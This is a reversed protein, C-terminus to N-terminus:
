PDERAREEGNFYNWASKVAAVSWNRFSRWNIREEPLVGTGSVKCQYIVSTILQQFVRLLYTVLVLEM